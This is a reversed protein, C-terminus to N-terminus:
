PQIIPTHKSTSDHSCSCQKDWLSPAHGSPRGPGVLGGLPRAFKPHGYGELCHRLGGGTASALPDRRETMLNFTHQAGM